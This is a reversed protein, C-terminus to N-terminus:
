ILRAWDIKAVAIKDAECFEEIPFGDPFFWGVNDANSFGEILEEGDAVCRVFHLRVTKGPYHHELTLITEVAKVSISLEEMIEREAAQLPSEGQDLKGGPFEWLNHLYGGDRRALLVKGSYIIVAAAVDICDRSALTNAYGSM